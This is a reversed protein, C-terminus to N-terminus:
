FHLRLLVLLLTSFECNGEQCENENQCNHVCSLGPLFLFWLLFHLLRVTSFPLPTNTHWGTSITTKAGPLTGASSSLALLGHLGLSTLDRAVPFFLKSRLAFVLELGPSFTIEIGGQLGSSPIQLSGEVIGVALLCNGDGLRTALHSLGLGLCFGLLLFLFALFLLLHQVLSAM